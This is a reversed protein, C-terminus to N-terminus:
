DDFGDEIKEKRLRFFSIVPVELAQALLVIDDATPVQQGRTLRYLKKENMDMDYALSKVTRNQKRAERKVYRGFESNNFRARTLM